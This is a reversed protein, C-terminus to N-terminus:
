VMELAKNMFPHWSYNFASSSPHNVMYIPIRKEDITYYYFRGRDGDEIKVEEGFEGGTPLWDWLRNGWVFVLDPKYAQLIEFFAAQSNEFEDNLPSVRARDTAYQVYNYFVISDWFALTEEESLYSNYFVNGFKTFTNMWHSFDGKGTKYDLFYKVANKTFDICEPHNNVNGCDSCGKGCIHSEGLVMIKKESSSYNEGICPSFFVNKM